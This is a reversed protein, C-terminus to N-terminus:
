ARNLCMFRAMCSGSNGDLELQGTRCTFGLPSHLHGTGWYLVWFHVLIIMGLMTMTFAIRIVSVAFQFIRGRTQSIYVTHVYKKQLDCDVPSGAGLTLTPPETALYLMWFHVLITMALM